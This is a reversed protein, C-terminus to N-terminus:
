RISSVVVVACKSVHSFRCHKLIDFLSKKKAIEKVISISLINKFTIVTNQIDFPWRIVFHKSHKSM